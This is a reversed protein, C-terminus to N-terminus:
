FNKSSTSLIWFLSLAPAKREQGLLQLPIKIVSAVSQTIELGSIANTDRGIRIGLATGSVAVFIATALADAILAKTLTVGVVKASNAFVLFTGAHIVAGVVAKTVKDFSLTNTEGAEKYNKM